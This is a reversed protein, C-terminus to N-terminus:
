GRGVLALLYRKVNFPQGSLITQAHFMRAVALIILYATALLLVSALPPQWWPVGGSALRTMMVVPATLPFLSTVVGFTSHPEEILVSIFMLPIILPIVLIITAQSAERLNPVLAGIGAMLGGYVAYGLVFFVLGWVLFSPPLQFIAPLQFTQGSLRLLTYGTGVWLVTQILGAIGLGIIKGLLLQRPTASLMLVEIVRNEKEKTISSLL